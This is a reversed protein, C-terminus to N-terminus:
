SYRGYSRDVARMRGAVRAHALRTDKFVFIVLFINVVALLASLFGPGTYLNFFFYKGYHYGSNGLPVFAMGLVSLVLNIIFKTGAVYM